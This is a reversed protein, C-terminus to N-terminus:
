LAYYLAQFLFVASHYFDEFRPVAAAMGAPISTQDSSRSASSPKFGKSRPRCATLPQGPGLYRIEPPLRALTIPVSRLDEAGAEATIDIKRISEVVSVVEEAPNPVSM